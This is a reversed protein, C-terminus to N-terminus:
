LVDISTLTLLQARKKLIWIVSVIAVHWIVSKMGSRIMYSTPRSVMREDSGHFSIRIKIRYKFNVCVELFM